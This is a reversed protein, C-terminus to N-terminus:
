LSSYWSSPLFHPDLTACPEYSSSTEAVDSSIDPPRVPLLIPPPRQELGPSRSGLAPSPRLHSSLVTHTCTTRTPDPTRTAPAPTSPVHLRLLVSGEQNLLWGSVDHCLWCSCNKATQVLGKWSSIPGPPAPTLAALLRQM